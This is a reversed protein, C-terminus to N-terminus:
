CCKRRTNVSRTQGNAYTKTQGNDFSVSASGFSISISTGAVSNTVSDIGETVSTGSANDHKVTLTDGVSLQFMKGADFGKDTGTAANGSLMGRGTLETTPDISEINMGSYAVSYTAQEEKQDNTQGFSPIGLETDVAFANDANTVSGANFPQVVLILLVM